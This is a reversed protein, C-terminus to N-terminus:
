LKRVMKKFQCLLIGFLILLSALYFNNPLLENLIFFGFITSWFPVKYNVLSLFLAGEKKILHILIITAIGTPFIGLYTIAFLSRYDQEFPLIGHIFLSPLSFLSAIFLAHTTFILFNVPESKRILIAGLSYSFPAVICLLLFILNTGQNKELDDAAKSIVLIVSGALGISVGLIKRLTIDEDRLFFFSFIIIILPIIAMCLGVFVTSLHEQAIALITFPLFNSFIAVGFCFFWYKASKNFNFLEVRLFVSFLFVVLFGIIIRLSAIQIPNFANIAFKISLFSSGWLIGLISLLIWPYLNRLKSNSLISM